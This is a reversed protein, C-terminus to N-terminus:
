KKICFYCLCCCFCLIILLEFILWIIYGINNKSYIIFYKNNYGDLTCENYNYTQGSYINYCYFCVQEKTIKTNPINNCESNINLQLYCLKTTENTFCNQQYLNYYPNHIVLIPYIMIAFILIICIGGGCASSKPSDSVYRRIKGVPGYITEEVYPM